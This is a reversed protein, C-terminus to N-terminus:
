QETIIDFLFILPFASTISVAELRAAAEAEDDGGAATFVDAIAVRTSLAKDDSDEDEATAAAEGSGDDGAVATM